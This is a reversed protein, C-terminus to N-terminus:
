RTFQLLHEWKGRKAFARRERHSHAERRVAASSGIKRNM